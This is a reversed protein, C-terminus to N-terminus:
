LLFKLQLKLKREKRPESKLGLKKLTNMDKMAESRSFTSTLIMSSMMTANPSLEFFSLSDKNLKNLSTTPLILPSTLRKSLAQTSPPKASNFSKGTSTSSSVRKLNWMKLSKRKPNNPKPKSNNSHNPTILM